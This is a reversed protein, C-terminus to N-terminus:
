GIKDKPLALWNGSELNQMNLARRNKEQILYVDYHNISLVQFIDKLSTKSNSTQIEDAELYIVPKMSQLVNKAGVLIDLEAGQVDMKIFDVKKIKNQIVWDDLTIQKVRISDSFSKFKFKSAEGQNSANKSPLYFEVTETDSGLAFSEITVKKEMQNLLLNIKLKRSITEFPEFAYLHGDSDILRGILVSESGNNAGAEIVIMDPKIFEELILNTEPEYEGLFFINWGIYEHTNLLFKLGNYKKPLYNIILDIGEMNNNGFSYLFNAVRYKLRM